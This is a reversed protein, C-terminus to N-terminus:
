PCLVALSHSASRRCHLRSPHRAEPLMRREQWRMLVAVKMKVVVVRQMLTALSRMLALLRTTLEVVHVLVALGAMSNVLGRMLAGALKRM